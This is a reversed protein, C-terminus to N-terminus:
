WQYSYTSRVIRKNPTAIWSHGANSEWTAVQRGDESVVMILISSASFIDGLGSVKLFIELAGRDVINKYDGRPIPISCGKFAELIKSAAETVKIDGQTSECLSPIAKLLTCLDSVTKIALPLKTKDFIDQSAADIAGLFEEGNALFDVIPWLQNPAVVVYIDQDSSNAIYVSQRAAM